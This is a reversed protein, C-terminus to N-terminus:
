LTVAIVKYGQHCCEFCIIINEEEYEVDIPKKNYKQICYDYVCYDCVDDGVPIEVREVTNIVCM